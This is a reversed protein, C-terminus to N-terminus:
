PIQGTRRTLGAPAQSLSEEAFALPGPCEKLDQSYRSKQSWKTKPHNGKSNNKNSKKRGNGQPRLKGLRTEINKVNGTIAKAHHDLAGMLCSIRAVFAEDDVNIEDGDMFEDDDDEDDDDGAAMDLDEDDDEDRVIKKPNKKPAQPKEYSVDGPRPSRSPSDRISNTQWQDLNLPAELEGSRPHKPMAAEPSQESLLDSSYEEPYEQKQCMLFNLLLCAIIYIKTLIVM